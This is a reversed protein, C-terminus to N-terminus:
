HDKALGSLKRVQHVSTSIHVLNISRGEKNESPRELHGMGQRM